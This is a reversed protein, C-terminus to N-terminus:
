AHMPVVAASRSPPAVAEHRAPAPENLGAALLADRLRALGLRIRSKVTGLPLGTAGAIESHTLGEFYAMAIARQQEIPLEAIAARVIDRDLTATVQEIVSPAGDRLALLVAEDDADSERRARVVDIARNRVISTLWTRASGRGEVFSGARRWVSLFADQVVDEACGRDHVVRLALSFALRHYRDYLAALSAEDQHAIGALLEADTVVTDFTQIVM